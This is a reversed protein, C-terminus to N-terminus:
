TLKLPLTKAACRIIEADPAYEYPPEYLELVDQAAATATNRPALEPLRVRIPAPVYIAFCITMMPAAASLMMNFTDHTKQNGIVLPTFACDLPLIQAPALVASFAAIWFPLTWSSGAFKEKGTPNAAAFM